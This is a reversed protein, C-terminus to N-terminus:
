EMRTFTETFDGSHRHEPEFEPDTQVNDYKIHLIMKDSTLVEIIPNGYDFHGFEGDTQTIVLTNGNLSMIQSGRDPKWQSYSYDYGTVSYKNDEM